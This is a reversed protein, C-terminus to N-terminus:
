RQEKLNGRRKNSSKGRKLNDMNMSPQVIQAQQININKLLVYEGDNNMKVKGIYINRGREDEQSNQMNNKEIARLVAQRYRTNTQLEAIDLSETCFEYEFNGDQTPIVIRYKKLSTNLKRIGEILDFKQLEVISLDPTELGEGDKVTPRLLLTGKIKSDKTKIEKLKSVKEDSELSIIINRLLINEPRSCYEYARAKRQEKEGLKNLAEVRQLISTKRGYIDNKKKEIGEQILRYNENVLDINVKSDALIFLEEFSDIGNVVRM